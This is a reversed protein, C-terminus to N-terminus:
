QGAVREVREILLRRTTFFEQANTAPFWTPVGAVSQWNAGNTSREIVPVLRVWSEGKMQPPEPLAEWEVLNSM